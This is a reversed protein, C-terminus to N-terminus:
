NEVEVTVRCPSPFNGSQDVVTLQLTYLGNALEQTNLTALAGREVPSNVSTLFNFTAASSADAGEAYELKYYQFAEHTATGVVDVTGSIVQNVGPFVIVSRPDTCEPLVVVGAGPEATATITPTVVLSFTTTLPAATPAPTTTASLQTATPTPQVVTPTPAVTPTVTAPTLPAVDATVVLSPMILEALSLQINLNIVMPITVTQVETVGLPIRVTLSVPVQQQITARVPAIEVVTANGEEDLGESNQASVAMRLLLVLLAALTLTIWIPKRM